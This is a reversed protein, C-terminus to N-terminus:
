AGQIPATVDASCATSSVVRMFLQNQGSRSYRRVDEPSPVRPAGDVVHRQYLDVLAADLAAQDGPNLRVSGRVSDLLRGTDSDAECVALLERGSALHEFTKAPILGRQGQAFNLLVTAENIFPKLEEPAVESVLQVVRAARRNKLWEALSQGRYSECNGVFRVTVRSADVGPRALLRELAELFPFPDRNTYLIGAFLINLRHGTQLVPALPEGDFGNLVVHMKAAHQPYADRLAAAIGPSATTVASAYAVM